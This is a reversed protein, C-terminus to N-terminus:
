SFPANNSENSSAENSINLGNEEVAQESSNLSNLESFQRALKIKHEELASFVDMVIDESRLINLSIEPTLSLYNNDNINNGTISFFRLLTILCRAIRKM